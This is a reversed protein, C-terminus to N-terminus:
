SGAGPRHGQFIPALGREHGKVVGPGKGLDCQELSAQEPGAKWIDEGALEWLEAPNSPSQVTSPSVPGCDIRRWQRRHRVAAAVALALMMPRTKM